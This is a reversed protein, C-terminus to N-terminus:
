CCFPQRIMSNNSTYKIPASMTERNIGYKWGFGNNQAHLCLRVADTVSKKLGLTKGRALARYPEGDSGLGAM